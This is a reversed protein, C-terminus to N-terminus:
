AKAYKSGICSLVNTGHDDYQFVNTGSTVFDKTEIVIISNGLRSELVM